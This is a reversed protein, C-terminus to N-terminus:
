RKGGKAVRRSIAWRHVESPGDYVRFARIERFVRETIADGSLGMGGLIQVCRDAIRFLAESCFVKAVSSEHRAPKGQDLLWAVNWPASAAASCPPPPARRAKTVNKCPPRRPLETTAGAM